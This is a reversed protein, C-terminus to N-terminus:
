RKLTAIVTRVLGEGGAISSDGLGPNGHLDWIVGGAEEIVPVLCAIDWLNMKADIMLDARGSAVLLYGYGDGWTRVYKAKQLLEQSSPWRRLLDAPDTIHVWAHELTSSQRIKSSKGNYFCGLGTAAWVTEELFPNHIVGIIPKGKHMLAVLVTYLPIGHIFSKTGDIPDIIWTYEGAGDKEGFEEGLIGHDPFREEIEARMLLETEKDAITVPSEDAKSEVSFETRFYQLTKKGGLVALEKAFVMLESLENQKM